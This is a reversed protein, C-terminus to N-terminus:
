ESEETDYGDYEDGVETEEATQAREKGKGNSSTANKTDVIEVILQGGAKLGEVDGLKKGAEWQIEHRPYSLALKFGWWKEGVKGSGQMAQVLGEEGAAVGGPPSKPDLDSSFAVGDPIFMTDVFAFVATVSDGEGFFRVGRKGDPMRVGIRVTKGRSPEANGPRPERPVLGRRAWRRWEMRKEEWHARQVEAEEREVEARAADDAVRRAEESKRRDQEISQLIREKDRRKSEEFARDQEARLARERERRDHEVAKQQAKETAQTRVRQIYPQVRPLVSDILQVTLVSASTPASASPISPGQHRSLVTLVPSSTSNSSGGRRPQLGIFAVFPYTTAQLKQSASWADRDRIDGGWVLFDNDHM